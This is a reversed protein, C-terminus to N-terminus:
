EEKKIPELLSLCFFNTDSIKWKKRSEISLWVVYAKLILYLIRQPPGVIVVNRTTGDGEQAERSPLSVSLNQLRAEIWERLDWTFSNLTLATLSFVSSILLGDCDDEASSTVFFYPRSAPRHFTCAWKKREEIKPKVLIIHNSFLELKMFWLSFEWKQTAEQKHMM